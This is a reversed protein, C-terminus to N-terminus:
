LLIFVFGATCVVASMVNGYGYSYRYYYCSYNFLEPCKWQETSPGRLRRSLLGRDIYSRIDGYTKTKRGRLAKSCKYFRSFM